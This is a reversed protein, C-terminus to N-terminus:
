FMYVGQNIQVEVYHEITTNLRYGVYQAEIPFLKHSREVLVAIEVSVPAQEMLVALGRALTGGTNLVDDILVVHENEAIQPLQSVQKSGNEKHVPLPAQRWEFRLTLQGLAQGIAQALQWGRTQIGLLLVRTTDYKAEQIQYAMRM